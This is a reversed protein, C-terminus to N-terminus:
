EFEILRAAHAAGETHVIAERVPPADGSIAGEGLRLRVGSVIRVVAIAQATAGVRQARDIQLASSAIAAAAIFMAM